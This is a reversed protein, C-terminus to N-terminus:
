KVTSPAFQLENLMDRCQQPDVGALEPVQESLPGIEDCAQELMSALGSVDVNSSSLDALLANLDDITTSEGVLGSTVLGDMLALTGPQTELGLEEAVGALTHGNGLVTASAIGTQDALDSVLPIGAVANSVLARTTAAALRSASNDSSSAAGLMSAVVLAVAVLGALLTSFISSLVVSATAMGHGRYGYTNTQRLAIVAVILGLPPLLFTLILAAVAAASYQPKVAAAPAQPVHVSM